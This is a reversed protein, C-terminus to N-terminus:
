QHIVEELLRVDVVPSRHAPHIGGEQEDADCLVYVCRQHLISALNSFYYYNSYPSWTALIIIRCGEPAFLMNGLAAGAQAVIIEATGVLKVQEPFSLREPEVVQFGHAHLLGEVEEVNKMQRLHSSRRLFLRRAGASTGEEMLSSLLKDRLVRIARPVFMARDPTLGTREVKAAFRYDFPAYATPTIFIARKLRLVEGPSLTIFMRNHVNCLRLSELINPHLNADVALPLNALEPIEDVLVLKPLYETLWHAYNANSWGLLSIAKEVETNGRGKAYRVLLGKSTEIRVLGHTEEGTLDVRFDYFDHHIAGQPTFVFECRGMIEAEPIEVAEVAPIVARWSQRHFHDRYWAPYVQPM